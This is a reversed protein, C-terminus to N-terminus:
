KTVRRNPQTFPRPIANDKDALWDPPVRSRLEDMQSVAEEMKAQVMPANEQIESEVTQKLGPKVEDLHKLIADLGFKALGSDSINEKIKPLQTDVTKFTNEVNVLQKEYKKGIGTVRIVQIIVTALAIFAPIAVIIIYNFLDIIADVPAAEAVETGNATVVPIGEGGTPLTTNANTTQNTTDQAFSVLFIATGGTFYIGVGILVFLFIREVNM